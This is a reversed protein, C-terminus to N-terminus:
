ERHLTTCTHLDSFVQYLVKKREKVPEWPEFASQWAKHCAGQGASADWSSM